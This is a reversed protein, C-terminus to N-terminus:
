ARPAGKAPGMAAPRSWSSENTVSNWFYIRGTADVQESWATAPNAAVEAPPTWSSEGTAPNWWYVRGDDAFQQSWGNPIVAPVTYVQRVPQPQQQPQQQVPAPRRAVAGTVPAVSTMEQQPARSSKSPLTQQQKNAESGSSGCCCRYLLVLISLIVVAAVGIVIYEQLMSSSSPPNNDQVGYSGDAASTTDGLLLSSNVTVVQQQLSAEWSNLVDVSNNHNLCFYVMTHTPVTTDLGVSLASVLGQGYSPPGNQGLATAIDNIFGTQFHTYDAM